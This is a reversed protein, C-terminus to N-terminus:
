NFLEHQLRQIFLDYSFEQEVRQRAAVGLRHRNHPDALLSIIAAALAPSDKAPVTIGTQRNLSVSAAGSRLDTNVVPLGHAMAELQVIGFTESTAVSPFVFLDAARYYPALDAVPPIISVRRELGLRSILGTLDGALVGAGIILAHGEVSRMAEILHSFGKYYVLRGVSLMLPTGFKQRIEASKDRDVASTTEPLKVGFPLVMCKDAHPRLFPSNTKIAPSSVFIKKARRLVIRLFPIILWKSWRQRIIDSHYWIMVPKGRGFLAYAVLGLPFPHHILILDYNGALKKFWFFFSISLPTSLVTGWSGAQFVRVGDVVVSQNNPTKSCVLADVEFRGTRNLGQAIDQVVTEIGGYHPPYFKNLQLIKM